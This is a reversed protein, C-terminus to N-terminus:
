QLQHHLEALVMLAFAVILPADNPVPEYPLFATSRQNQTLAETTIHYAITVACSGALERLSEEEKVPAAGGVLKGLGVTICSFIGPNKPWM